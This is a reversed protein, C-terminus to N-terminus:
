FPIDVTFTFIRSRDADEKMIPIGFDFALPVPSLGPVYL